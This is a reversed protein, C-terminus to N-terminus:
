NFGLNDIIIIMKLDIEILIVQQTKPLSSRPNPKKTLKRFHKSKERRKVLIATCIRTNNGYNSILLKQCLFPLMNPSKMRRKKRKLLHRLSKLRRFKPMKEHKFKSSLSSRNFRKRNMLLFCKMQVKLASKIM